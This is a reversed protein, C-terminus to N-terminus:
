VMLAFAIVQIIDEDALVKAPTYDAGVSAIFDRFERSLAGEAM